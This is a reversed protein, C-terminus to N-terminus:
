PYQVGPGSMGLRVAEKAGLRRRQVDNPPRERPSAGCEREFYQVLM